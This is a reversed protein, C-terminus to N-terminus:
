RTSQDIERKDTDIECVRLVILYEQEDLNITLIEDNNFRKLKKLQYYKVLQTQKRTETSNKYNVHQQTVNCHRIVGHV